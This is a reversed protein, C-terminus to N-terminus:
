INPYCLTLKFLVFFMGIKIYYVTEKFYFFYTSFIQLFYVMLLPWRQTPYSCAGGNIGLEKYKNTNM